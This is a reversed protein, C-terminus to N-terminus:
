QVRRFYTGDPRDIAVVTNASFNHWRRIPDLMRLVPFTRLPIGRKQLDSLERQTAQRHTPVMCNNVPDLELELAFFVYGSDSPDIEGLVIDVVEASHNQFVLINPGRNLLKEIVYTTKSKDDIVADLELFPETNRLNMLTELGSSMTM